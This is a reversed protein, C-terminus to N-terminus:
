KDRVLRVSYANGTISTGQYCGNYLYSIYVRFAESNESTSSWYYAYSDTSAAKGHFYTGVVNRMGTPTASFNYPDPFDVKVDPGLFDARKLKNGAVFEGGLTNLLKQWDEKTPVRWGEPAINKKKIVDYTYLRGFASLNADNDGYVFCSDMSTGDAYKDCAWNEVTWEQNGILTTYYVKGDVDTVTGYNTRIMAVESERSGAESTAVIKYYYNTASELGELNLQVNVANTGSIEVVSETNEIFTGSDSTKGYFVKVETDKGQPNVQTNITFANNTVKNKSVSVITPTTTETTRFSLTESVHDGGYKKIANLRIYYTTSKELNGISLNEIFSTDNRVIPYTYAKKDLFDKETGYEVVIDVNTGANVVYGSVSVKSDDANWVKSLKVEGVPLEAPDDNNCSTFSIASCAILCFQFYKKLGNKKMVFIKVM